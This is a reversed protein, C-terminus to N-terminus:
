EEEMYEPRGGPFGPRDDFRSYNGLCYQLLCLCNWAAHAMHPLGSELDEDEGGWFALLHRMASSYMRSYNMGKEWNRPAYKFAGYRFVEAVMELAEVPILHIPLKGIDDRHGQQRLAEIRGGEEKVEKLFAVRTEEIKAPDIGLRKWDITAETLKSM